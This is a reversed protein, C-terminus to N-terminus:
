IAQARLARTMRGTIRRSGMVRASLRFERDHADMRQQALAALAVVERTVKVYRVKPHNKRAM